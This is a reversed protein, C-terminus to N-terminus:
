AEALFDATTAQLLRRLASDRPKHQRSGRALADRGLGARSLANGSLGAESDCQKRQVSGRTLLTQDLEAGTLANGDLGARTLANQDSGAETLAEQGLGARAVAASPTQKARQSTTIDADTTCDLSAGVTSLLSVPLAGLCSIGAEVHPSLFADTMAAAATDGTVTPAAQSNPSTPLAESSHTQDAVLMDPQRHGETPHAHGPPTFDSDAQPTNSQQQLSPALVSATNMIETFLHPYLERIHQATLEQPTMIDRSSESESMPLRLEASPLELLAGSHLLADDVAPLSITAATPDDDAQSCNSQMPPLQQANGPQQLSSLKSAQQADAPVAKIMQRNLEANALRRPNLEGSRCGPVAKAMKQILQADAPPKPNLDCSSCDAGPDSICDSDYESCTAVPSESRSSSPMM